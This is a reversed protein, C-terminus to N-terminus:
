GLVLLWGAAWELLVRVPVWSVGRRASMHVGGTMMVAVVGREEEGLLTAPTVGGPTVSANIAVL